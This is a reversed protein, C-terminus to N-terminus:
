GVQRLVPSADLSQRDRFHVMVRAGPKEFRYYLGTAGGIATLATRGIYEFIASRTDPPMSNDRASVGMQSESKGCCSM